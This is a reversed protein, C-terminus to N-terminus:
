TNVKGCVCLVSCGNKPKRISKGCSVCSTSESIRLNKRLGRNNDLSKKPTVKKETISKSSNETVGVKGKKRDEKLIKFLQVAEHNSNVPVSVKSAFGSSESLGYDAKDSTGRLIRYFDVQADNSM